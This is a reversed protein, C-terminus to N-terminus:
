LSGCEGRRPTPALTFSLRVTPRCQLLSLYGWRRLRKDPIRWNDHCCRRKLRFARLRMRIWADLMRFRYACDAVGYYNAWGRVVPVLKATVMEINIGQNRRTTSRVKEKFRDIAKPSIGVGRRHFRFGLFTLGDRVSVVRSKDDNLSLQLTELVEKVLSMAHNAENRSRCLVVFDDAYRVIRYPSQEIASDLGDLVLNMMWPSIAGGQPIGREPVSVNGDVYVGAVLYAELLDLVRGDAVRERIRSMVVHHSLNDFCARVDCDAAYCYGQQVDAWITTIADHAKRGKRYAFSRDSLLNDFIPDLVQILAQGVIRDAVTPVGLPRREKPNSSKPIYVRRVPQWQYRRQMLKRQIERLHMELDASFMRLTVRDLGHAGKNRRVRQYARMLNEWRYVKDILSHAKLPKAGGKKHTGSQMTTPKRGPRHHQASTNAAVHVTPAPTEDMIGAGEHEQHRGRSASPKSEIRSSHGNTSELPSGTKGIHQEDYKPKQMM